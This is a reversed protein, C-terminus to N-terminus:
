SYSGCFNHSHLSQTAHAFLLNQSLGNRDMTFSTVLWFVASGSIKTLCLLLNKTIFHVSLIISLLINVKLNQKFIVNKAILNGPIKWLTLM